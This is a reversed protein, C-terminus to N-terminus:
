FGLDKIWLFGPFLFDMLDVSGNCTHTRTNAETEGMCRSRAALLTRTGVVGVVEHSLAAGGLPGRAVAM